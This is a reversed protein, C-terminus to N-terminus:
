LKCVATGDNEHVYEVHIKGDKDKTAVHRLKRGCKPCHTPHVISESM